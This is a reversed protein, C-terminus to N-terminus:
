KVIEEILIFKNRSYAAKWRSGKTYDKPEIPQQVVFPTDSEDALAKGDSVITVIHIPSLSPSKVWAFSNDDKIIGFKDLSESHDTILVIEKLNFVVEKDLKLYDKQHDYKTACIPKLLGRHRDILSPAYLMEIMFDLTVIIKTTLEKDFVENYLLHHKWRIVSMNSKSGNCSGCAFVKNHAENNGGKSKPHIHDITRTKETLGTKCYFCEDKHTEFYYINPPPVNIKMPHGSSKKKKKKTNHFITKKEEESAITNRYTILCGIRKESCSLDCNDFDGICKM